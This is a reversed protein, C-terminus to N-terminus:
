SFTLIQVDADTEASKVTNNKLAEKENATHVLGDSFAQALSSGRKVIIPSKPTSLITVKPEGLGAQKVARSLSSQTGAITDSQFACSTCQGGLNWAIIIQEPPSNDGEHHVIDYLTLIGNDKNIIPEIDKQLTTHVCSVLANDTSPTFTSPTFPIDGSTCDNYAQTISFLSGKKDIYEALANGMVAMMPVNYAKTHALRWPVHKPSHFTVTNPTLQIAKIQGKAQTFIHQALPSCAQLDTNTDTITCTLIDAGVISNNATSGQLQFTLTNPSSTPIHVLTTDQYTFNHPSNQRM